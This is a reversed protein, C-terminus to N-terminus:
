KYPYAFSTTCNRAPESLSTSPIISTRWKALCIKVNHAILLLGTTKSGPLTSVWVLYVFIFQDWMLVSHDIHPAPASESIKGRELRMRQLFIQIAERQRESHREFVMVCADFMFFKYDEFTSGVSFVAGSLTDDDGVGYIFDVKNIRCTNYDSTIWHEIFRNKPDLKGNDFALFVFPLTWVFAELEHHYRRTVNKEGYRDSLLDLAMFPITGTRDTELVHRRWSVAPLDFDTLVGCKRIPNYKANWLSPDNHKISHKWLFAHGSLSIGVPSLCHTKM